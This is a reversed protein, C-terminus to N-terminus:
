FNETVQTLASNFAEETSTTWISANTSDEVIRNYSDTGTVVNIIKLDDTLHTIVIKSNDSDIMLDVSGSKFYTKM